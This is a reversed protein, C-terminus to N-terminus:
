CLWRSCTSSVLYAWSFKLPLFNLYHLQPSKSLRWITEVTNLEMETEASWLSKDFWGIPFYTSICKRIFSKIAFLFFHFCNWSCCSLFRFTNVSINASSEPLFSFFIMLRLFIMTKKKNSLVFGLLFFLRWKFSSSDLLYHKKCAIPGYLDILMAEVQFQISDVQHKPCYGDETSRHTLAFFWM